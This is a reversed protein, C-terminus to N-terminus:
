SDLLGPNDKEPTIQQSRAVQNVKEEEADRQLLSPLLDEGLTLSFSIINCGTRTITGPVYYVSLLHFHYNNFQTCFTDKM